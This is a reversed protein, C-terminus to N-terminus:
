PFLWGSHPASVSAESPSASWLGSGLATLSRTEFSYSLFLYIFLLAPCEGDELLGQMRARGGGHTNVYVVYM